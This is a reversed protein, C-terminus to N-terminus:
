FQHNEVKHVADMMGKQLEKKKKNLEQKSKVYIPKGYAIVIKTFPWPSKFNDWSNFVIKRKSNWVAPVIPCGTKLGVLLIGEKIKYKPGKPGDPTFAVDFGNKIHVIMGVLAKVGGRTSSGRITSYGCKKMIEAIYEGDKHQSVLVGLNQNRHLYTLYLTCNHWLSYIVPTKDKKFKERIERNIYTKRSTKGIFMM